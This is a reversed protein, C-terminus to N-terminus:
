QALKRFLEKHVEFVEAAAKRAQEPTAYRIEGPQSALATTKAPKKTPYAAKPEEIKHPKKSVCPIHAPWRIM